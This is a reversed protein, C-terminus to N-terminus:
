VAVMRRKIILEIEKLVRKKASSPKYVLSISRLPKPDCFPIYSNLSCRQTALQPMLTIGVGSAVMHRLVELSTARFSSSITTSDEGCFNIVQDKMCHGDDLLLLHQRDIAEKLICAQQALPHGKPMALLFEEEFLFSTKMGQETVPLSLIAAHLAGNKIKEILVETKEEILYFSINPLSQALDPMIYPLLYPALTPFIGLRLEGVFPDKAAKAVNVLEDVQQMIQRAQAVITVGIDTLAVSKNTRELLQVGLEGELKKIQMSLAPQSVFCAQAAKGFHGLDAVSVLYHLDKINM